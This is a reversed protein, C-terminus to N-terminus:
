PNFFDKGGAAIFATFSDYKPQWQLFTRTASNDVLKGLGGAGPASKPATFRVPPPAVGATSFVGSSICASM